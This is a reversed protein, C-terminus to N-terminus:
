MRFFKFYMIWHLHDYFLATKQKFHLQQILFNPLLNQIEVMKNEQYSFKHPSNVLDRVGILSKHM